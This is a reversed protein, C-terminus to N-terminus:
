FQDWAVELYHQTCERPPWPPALAKTPATSGPLLPTSGGKWRYHAYSRGPRQHARHHFTDMAKHDCCHCSYHGKSPYPLTIQHRIWYNHQNQKRFDVSFKQIHEKEQPIADSEKFSINTVIESLVRREWQFFFGEKM